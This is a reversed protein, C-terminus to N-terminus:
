ATGRRADAVTQLGERLVLLEADQTRLRAEAADLAGRVRILEATDAEPDISFVPLAPSSLIPSPLLPVLPSSSARRLAGSPQLPSALDMSRESQGDSFPDYNRPPPQSPQPSREILDRQGWHTDHQPLGVSSMVIDAGAAARLRVIEREAAALASRLRICEVEYLLVDDFSRAPPPADRHPVSKLESDHRRLLCPLLSHHPSTDARLALGENEASLSRNRAASQGLLRIADDRSLRPCSPDMLGPAAVRHCFTCAAARELELERQAIMAELVTIRAGLEKRTQMCASRERDSEARLATIVSAAYVRFAEPPPALPTSSTPPPSAPHALSSLLISAHPWCSYDNCIEVPVLMTLAVRCPRLGILAAALALPRLAGKEVLQLVADRMDDREAESTALAARAASVRVHLADQMRQADAIEQEHKISASSLADITSLLRAQLVSARSAWADRELKLEELRGERTDPASAPVYSPNMSTTMAHSASSRGVKRPVQFRWGDSPQTCKREATM